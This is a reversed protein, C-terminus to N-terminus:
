PPVPSDPDWEPQKPKAVPPAPAPEDHEVPRAHASATSKKTPAPREAHKETAFIKPASPPPAAVPTNAVAADVRPPVAAVASQVPLPAVLPASATPRGRALLFAGACLGTLALGGAAWALRGRPAPREVPATPQSPTGGIKREAVTAASSTATVIDVALSKSKYSPTGATITQAVHAALGTGRARAERWAEIKQGFVREMFRAITLPSIAIKRERAFTELELQMEQATAYRDQRRRALGKMVIRELEPPYSPRRRSPPEPAEEVIMKMIAYDSDGAFLKTCTSLEYLVIAIAFVDSRRDLPKSECQEPSMYGFKGRVSGSQTEQSRSAAKAIGFDVVKVAGDYGVLVNSPSVDRHIIGLPKGDFGVREHAYHLGSCMGIVITLAVDLPMEGRREVMAKLLTRADEGHIFEMAFFYSGAEVGVDYVQVVNSHQLTAALRAEDLFLQVIEKNNALAPLIRKVVVIKEFGEIGTVRALHIEAMGGTALHCILEYKGLREARAEGPEGAEPSAM